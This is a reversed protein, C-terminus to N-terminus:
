LDTQSALADNGTQAGHEFTSLYRRHSLLNASACELAVVIQNGRRRGGHVPKRLSAELWSISPEAANTTENFIQSVRPLYIRVRHREYRISFTDVSNVGRDLLDILQRLYM